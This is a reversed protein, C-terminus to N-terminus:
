KQILSSTITLFSNEVNKGTKASALFIQIGTDATFKQIDSDSVEPTELEARDSKNGIIIIHVDNKAHKEVEKLWSHLNNFSDKRFM